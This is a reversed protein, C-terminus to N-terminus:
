KYQIKNLQMQEILNFIFFLSLISHAAEITPVEKQEEFCISQQHGRILKSLGWKFEGV